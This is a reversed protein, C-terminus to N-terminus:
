KRRRKVDGKLHRLSTPEAGINKNYKVRRKQGPIKFTGVKKARKAQAVKRAKSAVGLTGRAAGGAALSAVNAALAVGSKRAQKATVTRKVSKNKRRAMTEGAYRALNKAGVAKTVKRAVKDIRRKTSRIKKAM